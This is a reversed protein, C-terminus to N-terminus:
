GRNLWLKGAAWLAVVTVQAFGAIVAFVAAWPAGAVIGGVVGIIGLASVVVALGAIMRVRFAWAFPFFHLGVLAAIISPRLHGMGNAEALQTLLSIGVIMAVVSVTYTIGMRAQEKAFSANPPPTMPGLNSPRVWLFYLAILALVVIAITLPWRWAEGLETAYSTVFVIGGVIPVTAGLRAPLADRRSGTREHPRATETTM